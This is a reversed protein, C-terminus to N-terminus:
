FHVSPVIDSRLRNMLFRARARAVALIENKDGEDFVKVNFHIVNHHSFLITLFGNTKIANRDWVARKKMSLFAISVVANYLRSNM